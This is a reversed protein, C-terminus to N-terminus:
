QRIAEIVTWPYGQGPETAPITRQLQYGAQGLLTAYDEVTRERGNLEVLMVLNMLHVYSPAPRSPLPGEIVALTSGPQAARHVNRLIQVARQDDWDHLVSKLVYLDGGAPVEELFDGGVIDVRGAHGSAALSARAGEAVEPRDFLVGRAQPAADLLGTLLVGRSGGVDVIRRFRAVDYCGLVARSAEASISSMTRAFHAGEKPYRAYYAWVDMGLAARDQREGSVVADFLRGRPLWHGPSTLVIARDRLSGAVEDDRLEAGLPTLSFRDGDAEAFLGITAGARVLRGLGDPDASTAAALEPITAPGAALQDALGLRAATGCIQSVWYGTIMAMVQDRPSVPPTGPSVAPGQDTKVGM